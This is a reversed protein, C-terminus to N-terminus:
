RLSWREQLITHLVNALAQSGTHASIAHIGGYLRSLGASNAMDQWTSWTLEVPAAPVGSQIQSAGAPFVFTGFTNTQAAAFVPSLLSLDKETVPTSTPITPGFWDTMVLAFSQSFASHGSPFDAFPPTVFDSEQYPMWLEGAVPQGDYRTLTQGRYRRRIEQIPRAQMHMKKLGWVLRSTEFIHLALDLGSHFFTRYGRTHAVRFTQMYQKWFWICMGPPSVTFPGGAWFEAQVKQFDTLSGTIQVVQAIESEREAESPFLATAAAEVAAEDAESLGTGLVSKWNFTLYTQTKPGVKLPTWKEPHPFTNPDTTESVDLSQAGNPLDAAVPPVAAEVSGDTQRYHWWALWASQFASWHGKTQIQVVEDHINVDPRVAQENALLTAGTYGPVFYPMMFVLFRNMWLFLESSDVLYRIDWNWADRTGSLGGQVWNYAQALSAFWLYNIRACRTPGLNQAAEFVFLDGLAVFVADNLTYHPATPALTLDEPKENVFFPLDGLVRCLRLQNSKENHQERKTDPKTTNWVAITRNRLRELRASADM